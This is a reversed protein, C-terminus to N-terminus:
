YICMGIKIVLSYLLHVVDQHCRLVTGDAFVCAVNKIVGIVLEGGRFPGFGTIVFACKPTTSNM